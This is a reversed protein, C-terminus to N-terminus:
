APRVGELVVRPTLAISRRGILMLSEREVVAEAALMARQDGGVGMGCDSRGTLLVAAPMGKAGQGLRIDCRRRCTWVARAGQGGGGVGGHRRM